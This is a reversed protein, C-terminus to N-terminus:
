DERVLEGFREAGVERKLARIADRVKAEAARQGAAAEEERARRIAEGARAYGDQLATCIDEPQAKWNRTFWAQWSRASRVQRAPADSLSARRKGSRVGPKRGVALRLEPLDLSKLFQRAAGTVYVKESRGVRGAKVKIVEGGPTRLEQRRSDYKGIVEPYAAALDPLEATRVSRIRSM